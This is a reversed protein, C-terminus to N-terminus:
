IYESLWQQYNIKHAASFKNDYKKLLAPLHPKLASTIAIRGGKTKLDDLSMDWPSVVKMGQDELRGCILLPLDATLVWGAEKLQRDFGLMSSNRPMNGLEQPLAPLIEQRQRNFFEPRVLFLLVLVGDLKKQSLVVEYLCTAIIMAPTLQVEPLTSQSQRTSTLPSQKRM